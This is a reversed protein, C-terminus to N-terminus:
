CSSVAIAVRIGVDLGVKKRVFGFAGFLLGTDFLLCQIWDVIFCQCYSVHSITIDTHKNTMQKCLVLKGPGFQVRPNEPQTYPVPVSKTSVLEKSFNM